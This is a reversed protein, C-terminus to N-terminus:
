TQAQMHTQTHERINNAHCMENKTTKGVRVASLPLSPEM